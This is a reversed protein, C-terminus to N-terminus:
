AARAVPPDSGDSGEGGDGGDGIVALDAELSRMGLLREVGLKRREPQSLDVAVRDREDLPEGEVSLELRVVPRRLDATQRLVRACAGDSLAVESGVPYCGTSAIFKRLLAPDFAGSSDLMIRFAKTPSMAGKYPRVATLAEYVDCIKVLRTVISQRSSPAAAPYGGGDLNRHHGHSVTVALDDVGPQSLLIAAGLETHREMERRQEPSLRARHHLVDPDIRMKGIDHLLAAAGVRVLLRQDATLKSAFDLALACVRVSHGLTYADYREYRVM